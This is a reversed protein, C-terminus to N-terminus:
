ARWSRGHGQGRARPRAGVFDEAQNAISLRANHFHVVAFPAGEPRKTTPNLRQAWICRYGDRFSSGYVLTGDPSWPGAECELVDIWEKEGVVGDSRVPAVYSRFETGDLFKVWRDDPSFRGCCLWHGPRALLKTTRGTPLDLLTVSGSSNNTLVRKGDSSWGTLQGCGDCVVKPTGGASPMVYIDWNPAGAFAVLTGDPSFSPNYKMTRSATLAVDEGTEVNRVWLEQHGTRTSVFVLRTGDSSLSPFFDDADEHTWRRVPGTVKGENPDIPLSWISLNQRMSAFAVRVNGGPESALSPSDELAPGSTVREPRGAVKWTRSSIGIRWLNTTDGARASFLVSQSDPEWAGPALALPFVQLGGSLREARTADLAGTKVAPGGELPAVWWDLGQEPSSDRYGLFLVHSGDSSWIPLVATVFDPALRRPTGGASAVVFVKASDRISLSNGSLTGAWYTVWTGDPSFRPRRGGPAVLRAPGGFTSAMYIGGGDKESRFSITTGDPSFAPEREDAPDRTLRLPAGGGVQPVYIDLNGEGSRDSACALLKGDPSLAPDITLGTDRTL